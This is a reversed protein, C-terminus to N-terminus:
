LTRAEVIDPREQGIKLSRDKTFEDISEKNRFYDNSMHEDVPKRIMKKVKVKGSFSKKFQRKRKADGKFSDQRNQIISDGEVESSLKKENDSDSLLSDDVMVEDKQSNFNAVNGDLRVDGNKYNQSDNNVSNSFESSNNETCRRKHAQKSESKFSPKQKRLDKAVRKKNKGCDRCQPCSYHFHDDNYHKKLEM